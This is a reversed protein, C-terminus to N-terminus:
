GRLTPAAAEVPLGEAAAPAPAGTASAVAPVPIPKREEEPVRPPRAHLALVAAASAGAVPLWALVPDWLLALLTTGIVACMALGTTGDPNTPVHGVALYLVVAAALVVAMAVGVLALLGGLWAGAMTPVPLAAYAANPLLALLVVLGGAAFPALPFRSM